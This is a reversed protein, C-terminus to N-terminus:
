VQPKQVKNLDKGFLNAGIFMRAFKPVIKILVICAIMSYFVNICLTLILKTDEM